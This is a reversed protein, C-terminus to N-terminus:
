HCFYPSRYGWQLIYAIKALKLMKGVETIKQISTQSKASLEVRSKGVKTLFTYMIFKNLSYKYIHKLCSRPNHECMTKTSTNKDTSGM